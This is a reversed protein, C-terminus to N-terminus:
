LKRPPIRWTMTRAMTWFGFGKWRFGLSFLKRFHFTERRVSTSSFSLSPHFSSIYYWRYDLRLKSGCFLLVLDICIKWPCFRSILTTIMLFKYTGHVLDQLNVFLDVELFLMKSMEYGSTWIQFKVPKMGSLGITFISFSVCLLALM